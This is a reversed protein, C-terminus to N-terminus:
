AIMKHLKLCKGSIEWIGLIRLRLNNLLEHSLKYIGHKYTVIASRKVKPSLFIQYFMSFDWFIIFSIAPQSMILKSTLRIKWILGNKRCSWFTSIFDWIDQSRFFSKLHFLFCKEDNRFPKWDFLYCNKQFTATWNLYNTKEKQLFQIMM